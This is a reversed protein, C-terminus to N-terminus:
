AIKAHDKKNYTNIFKEIILYTLILFSLNIIIGIGEHIINAKLNLIDSLKSQTIISVFIRSTNVLLTLFFASILAILISVIKQLHSRTYKLFLFTIMTFSLIWFNFGACSKDVIINLQEHYYGQTEIYISSSGTILNILMDTPKLLFIVDEQDAYKFGLKLLIFILVTVVYYEINKHLKM